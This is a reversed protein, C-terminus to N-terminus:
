HNPIPLCALWGPKVPLYCLFIGAYKKTAQTIEVLEQLTHAKFLKLKKHNYQLNLENLNKHQESPHFNHEINCYTAL